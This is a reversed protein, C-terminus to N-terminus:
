AEYLALHAFATWSATMRTHKLQENSVIAANATNPTTPYRPMLGEFVGRRPLKSIPNKVYGAAMTAIGPAFKQATRNKRVRRRSPMLEVYGMSSTTTVPTRSRQPWLTERKVTAVEATTM